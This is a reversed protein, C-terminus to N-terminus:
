CIRQITQTFEFSSSYQSIRRRLRFRKKLRPRRDSQISRAAPLRDLGDCPRSRQCHIGVLLRGPREQRFRYGSVGRAMCRLRKQAIPLRQDPERDRSPRRINSSQVRRFCETLKEFCSSSGAWRVPPCWQYVELSKKRARNTVQKTRRPYAPRNAFAERANTPVAAPLFRDPPALYPFAPTPISITFPM